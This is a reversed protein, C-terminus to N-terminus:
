PSDGLAKDVAVLAKQWEAVGVTYGADLYTVVASYLVQRALVLAKWQEEVRDMLALATQAALETCNLPEEHVDWLRCDKCEIERCKAADELQQRTLIPKEAM